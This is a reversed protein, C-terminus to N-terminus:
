QMALCQQWFMLAAPPLQTARRRILYFRRAMRTPPPTSIEILTADALEREVVRRSLCGIGVTRAVARKIPENHRFEMAIDIDNLHASFTDNFMSRAGSGRERLVWPTTVLATISAKTKRALPHDPSAFVVLEDELWPACLITPDTVPSEVLGFDLEGSTLRDTVGPSNDSTIRIEVSPYQQQFDVMPDVIVHNAITFSAGIEIIGGVANGLFQQDLKVAQDILSAINPLLSQGFRNLVLQRGIREFLQRGINEELQQLSSSIASQSLALAQGAATTSGFEDIAQLVRLQKLTFQM